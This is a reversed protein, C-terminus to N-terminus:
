LPRPMRLLRCISFTVHSGADVDRFYRHPEAIVGTLRLSDMTGANESYDKVAIEDPDMEIADPVNVNLRHWGGGSAIVLAIRTNGFRAARIEEGPPTFKSGAFIVPGTYTPLTAM